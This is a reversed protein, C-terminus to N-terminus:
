NTQTANNTLIFDPRMFCASLSFKRVECGLSRCYPPSTFPIEHEYALTRVNLQRLKSLHKDTLIIRKKKWTLSVAM